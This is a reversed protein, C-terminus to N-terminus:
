DPIRRARPIGDTNRLWWSHPSNLIDGPTGRAVLLGQNMLILSNCHSLIKPRHSALVITKNKSAQRKLLRVIRDENGGDQSSDIEDLLLIPRDNYIARALMIRQREGQSLITGTSSVITNIGHQLGQITVALGLQHMLSDIRQMDPKHNGLAINSAISRNFLTTDQYAVSVSRVSDYSQNESAISIFGSFPEIDGSLVKLLTSKGSGSIGCIGTIEGPRFCHSFDRLVYEAETQGLSGPTCVSIRECRIFIGDDSVQSGFSFGLMSVAEDSKANMLEHLRNISVAARSLASLSNTISVLGMVSIAFLGAFSILQELTLFERGVLDLGLLLLLILLAGISMFLVSQSIAQLHRRHRNAILISYQRQQIHSIENEVADFRQIISRQPLIEFIFKTLSSNAEQVLHNWRMLRGEFVWFVTGLLFSSSIMLFFLAPATVFAGIFAGLFQCVGKPLSSLLSATSSHVVSLDVAMRSAMEKLSESHMNTQRSQLASRFIQRRLSCIFEDVESGSIIMAANSFLLWGAFSTLAAFVMPTAAEISSTELLTRSADSLLLPVLIITISALLGACLVFLVRNSKSFHNFGITAAHKFVALTSQNRLRSSDKAAIM